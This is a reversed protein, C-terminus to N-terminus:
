RIRDIWIEAFGLKSAEAEAEERSDFPGFRVRYFIKDRVKQSTIFGSAVNKRRLRSLWEEADDRSLSSYIQVTFLNQKTDILSKPTQKTNATVPKVVNAPKINYAIQPRNKKVEPTTQKQLEVITNKPQIETKTNIEPESNEAITNPEIQENVKGSIQKDQTKKPEEIYVTKDKKKIETKVVQQMHKREFVPKLYLIYVVTGFILLFIIAAASIGLWLLPFRRHKKENISQIENYGKTEAPASEIGTKDISKGESLTYDEPKSPQSKTESSQFSEDFDDGPEFGGAREEERLEDDLLSM